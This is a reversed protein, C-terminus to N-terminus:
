FLRGANVRWNIIVVSRGAKQGSRLAKRLAVQMHRFKAWQKLSHDVARSVILHDHFSWCTTM